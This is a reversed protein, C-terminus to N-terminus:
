FLQINFYTVIFSAHKKTTSNVNPCITFYIVNGQKRPKDKGEVSVELLEVDELKEGKHTLFM